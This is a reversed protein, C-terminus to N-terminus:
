SDISTLRPLDGAAPKLDDSNWEIAEGQVVKKNLEDAKKNITRLLYDHTSEVLPVGTWDLYRAGIVLEDELDPEAPSIMGLPTGKVLPDAFKLTRDAQNTTIVMDRHLPTRRKRRRSPGLWDAAEQHPVLPASLVIRSLGALTAAAGRGDSDFGDIASRLLGVGMSRALLTAAVGHDKFVDAQLGFEVLAFKLANSGVREVDVADFYDLYKRLLGGEVGSPWSFLIPECDFRARLTLAQDVSQAFSKHFGHVFFVVPRKRRHAAEFAKRILAAVDAGSRQDNRRTLMVVGPTSAPALEVAEANDCPEPVGSQRAPEDGYALDDLREVEVAHVNQSRGAPARARHVLAYLTPESAGPGSSGAWTPYPRDIDHCEGDPLATTWTGGAWALSIPTSRPPDEIVRHIRLSGQRGDPSVGSFELWAFGPPTDKWLISGVAAGSSLVQVVPSGKDVPGGYAVRHIDGGLYLVAKGHTRADNLLETYEPYSGGEPEPAWWGQASFRYPHRLPSPGAIIVLPGDTRAVAERMVAMQADSLLRAPGGSAPRRATRDSRQDQVLLTMGHWTLAAAPMVPPPPLEAKDRAPYDAQWKAPDRLVSRFQHFLRDSELRITQPVWRADYESGGGHANNWAFDHEDRCVHLHEPGLRQVFDTILAKFEPVQWQLRYRWHMEEGFRKVIDSVTSSDAADFMRRLRPTRALSRLGWDMYIQDGLLLLADPAIKRVQNWIPQEPVREADMCSAFVLRPADAMEQEEEPQPNM